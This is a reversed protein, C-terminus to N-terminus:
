LLERYYLGGTKKVPLNKADAYADFIKRCSEEKEFTFYLTAFDVNRFKKDGIYVPVSNLLSSYKRESCLLYFNTNMRDTVVSLGRCSACGDISSQAPCARFRMLPMFGYGIVGKAKRSALKEILNMNLEPSVTFDAVGLKEYERASLSNLINLGHGGHVTFGMNVAASLTGINDALVHKVGTKKLQHLHLRISEM